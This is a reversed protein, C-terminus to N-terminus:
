IYKFTDGDQIFERENYICYINFFLLGTKTHFMGQLYINFNFLQRNLRFHQICQLMKGYM